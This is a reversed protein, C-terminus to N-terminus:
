PFFYDFLVYVSLSFFHYVCKWWIIKFHDIIWDHLQLLIYETKMYKKSHNNRKQLPFFFHRYIGNRIWTWFLSIWIIQFMSQCSQKKIKPNKKKGQAPLGEGAFSCYGKVIGWRISRRTWYSSHKVHRGPSYLVRQGKWSKSQRNADTTVLRFCLKLNDPSKWRHHVTWSKLSM